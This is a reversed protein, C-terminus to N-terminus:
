VVLFGSTAPADTDSAESIDMLSAESFSCESEVLKCFVKKLVDAVLTVCVDKFVSLGFSLPVAPEALADTDSAKIINM